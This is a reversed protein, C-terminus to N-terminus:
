HARQRRYGAAQLDHGAHRPGWFLHEWFRRGTAMEKSLLEALRGFIQAAQEQAFSDQSYRLERRNKGRRAPAPAPPLHDRLDAMITM